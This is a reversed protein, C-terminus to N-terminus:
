RAEITFGRSVADLLAWPKFLDAVPTPAADNNICSLNRLQQIYAQFRDQLTEKTMGGTQKNFGGSCVNLVLSHHQVLWLMLSLSDSKLCPFLNQRCVPVHLATLIPQVVLLTFSWTSFSKGARGLYIALHQRKSSAKVIWTDPAKIMWIYLGHSKPVERLQQEINPVM